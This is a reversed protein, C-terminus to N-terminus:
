DEDEIGACSCHAWKFCVSCAAWGENSDLYRGSCYLCPTNEIDSDSNEKSSQTIKKKKHVRKTKAACKKEPKKIVKMEKKIQKNKEALKKRKTTEELEKKYPSSTIIATKGRKRITRSTKRTAPFPMIQKPSAVLFSSKLPTTPSRESESKELWFSCGPNPNSM